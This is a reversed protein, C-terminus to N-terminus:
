RESLVATVAPSDDVSARLSRVPRPVIAASMM